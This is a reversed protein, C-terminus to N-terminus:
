GHNKTGDHKRPEDEDGQRCERLVCERGEVLQHRVLHRELRLQNAHMRAHKDGFASQIRKALARARGMTGVPHLRRLIDDRQLRPRRRNWTRLFTTANAMASTDSAYAM